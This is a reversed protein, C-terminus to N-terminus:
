WFQLIFSDGFWCVITYLTICIVQISTLSTYQYALVFCYNGEVDLLALLAYKWGHVQLTKEFDERFAALYPTFTMALLFYMLFVQTTPTNIGYDHELLQSFVGTSSLLLALLQGAALTLLLRCTLYSFLNIVSVVFYTVVM